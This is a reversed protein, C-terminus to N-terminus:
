EHYIIGRGMNNQDGVLPIDIGTIMTYQIGYGYYKSGEIYPIDFGRNMTNENAVWPVNHIDSGRGMTYRIGKGHYISGCVWPTDSKRSM